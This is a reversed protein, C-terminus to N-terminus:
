FQVGARLFVQHRTFDFFEVNGDRRTFRYDLGLAVTDTLRYRMGASLDYFDDNRSSGVFQSLGWSARALGTLRPAIQQELRLGVSTYVQGSSGPLTTEEISRDVYAVLLTEASPRWRMTFTFAPTTINKLNPDDYNQHMLGGFVEGSLTTGLRFRTGVGVRYGQSSRVYGFDDPRQDYSRVDGLLEVFPQWAPNADWRVLGGLTTRVRDRDANNIRTGAVTFSDEFALAEVALGVRVTIDGMRRSIGGYARYDHYSVPERGFQTADVSGRDEHSRAALAGLFVQTREDVDIRGEGDVRWNLTNESTYRLYNTWVLGASLSLWHRDWSSELNLRPAVVTVMDSRPDVRTAYVNSHHFLSTEVSPYLTVDGLRVGRAAGAAAPAGAAAGPSPPVVPAAAREFSAIEATVAAEVAPRVAEPTATVITRGISRYLPVNSGVFGGAELAAARALGSAAQPTAVLAPNRRIAETLARLLGAPGDAAGTRLAAVTAAPPPTQAM